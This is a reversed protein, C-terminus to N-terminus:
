FGSYSNAVPAMSSWYVAGSTAGYSGSSGPVRVVRATNKSMVTNSGIRRSLPRARRVRHVIRPKLILEGFQGREDIM